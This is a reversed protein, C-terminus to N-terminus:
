YFPNGSETTATTGTTTTTTLLQTTTTPVETTTTPVETTTTTVETTTTPVETTTTPVETTTTTVETTTISVETTTTTMSKTTTLIETSTSEIPLTTLQLLVPASTTDDQISTTSQDANVTSMITTSTTTSNFVILKSSFETNFSTFLKPTDTLNDRQSLTKSEIKDTEPKTITFYSEDTQLEAPLTNINKSITVDNTSTVSNSMASIGITASLPKEKTTIVRKVYNLPKRSVGTNNLLLKIKSFYDEDTTRARNEMIRKIISVPLWHGPFGSEVPNDVYAVADKSSYFWNKSVMCKCFITMTCVLIPILRMRVVNPIKKVILWTM